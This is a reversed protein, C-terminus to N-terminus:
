MPCRGLRNRSKVAPLRLIREKKRFDDCGFDNQKFSHLDDEDDSHARPIVPQKKRSREAKARRSARNHQQNDEADTAVPKEENTRTHKQKSREM